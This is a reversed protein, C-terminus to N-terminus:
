TAGYTRVAHPQRMLRDFDDLWRRRIRPIADHFNVYRSTLYIGEGLGDKLQDLRFVGGCAPCTVRAHDFGTEWLGKEDGYLLEAYPRGVDGGCSACRPEVIEDTPVVMLPPRGYIVCWDFGYDDDVGPRHEFPLLAQDGSGFWGEREYVGDAIVRMGLLVEAARAAYRAPDPDPGQPLLYVDSWGM